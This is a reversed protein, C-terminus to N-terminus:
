TEIVTKDTFDALFSQFVQGDTRWEIVVQPSDPKRHFMLKAGDAAPAKRFASRSLERYGDGSKRGFMFVFTDTQPDVEFSRKLPRPYVEPIAVEVQNRVMWFLAAEADQHPDPSPGAQTGQVEEVDVRKDHVGPRYQVEQEQRVRYETGGSKLTGRIHLVMQGRFDVKVAPLEKGRLVPIIRLTGPVSTILYQLFDRVGEERRNMDESLMRTLASLLKGDLNRANGAQAAAAATWGEVPLRDYVTEGTLMWYLLHAANFLAQERGPATGSLIVEPACFTLNDPDARNVILNGDADLSVDGPTLSVEPSLSTLAREILLSGCDLKEEVNLKQVRMALTEM